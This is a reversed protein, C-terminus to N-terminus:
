ASFRRQSSWKIRKTNKFNSFYIGEKSVTPNNNITKM